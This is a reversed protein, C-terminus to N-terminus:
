DVGTVSMFQSGLNIDVCITRTPSVAQQIKNNTTDPHIISLTIWTIHALTEEFNIISDVVIAM